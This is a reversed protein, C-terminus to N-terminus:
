EINLLVVTYKSELCSVCQHLSSYFNFEDFHGRFISFNVREKSHMRGLEPIRGTAQEARERGSRVLQVVCTIWVKWTEVKLQSGSANCRLDRWVVGQLWIWFIPSNLDHFGLQKWSVGGFMRHNLDIPVLEGLQKPLLSRLSNTIAVWRSMCVHCAVHDWCLPLELM